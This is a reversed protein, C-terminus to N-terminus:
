RGDFHHGGPREVVQAGNLEPYVCATENDAKEDTGYFCMVKSLPLTALKPKTEMETSTSIGLWGQVTVEFETSPELGLMVLTQITNQTASDFKEWIFPIADAGLSYGILSVKRMQWLKTYHAIVRAIDAAIQDPEKRRWFYRLSDVGVIAIGREALYEAIQKDIDRWGGDGSIFVALGKIKGKAPLEVLPLGALPGQPAGGIELANNIAAEVRDEMSGPVIALKATPAAEAFARIEAPPEESAILVWHGAIQTAPAYTHNLGEAKVEKLNVGCYILRSPYTPSMGISVGGAATNEPAQVATIYALTGGDGIGVM